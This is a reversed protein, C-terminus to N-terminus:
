KRESIGKLGMFIGALIFGEGVYKATSNPYMKILYVGLLVAIIGILINRM